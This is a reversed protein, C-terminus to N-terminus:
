FYSLFTLIQTFSDFFHDMKKRQGLLGARNIYDLGERRNVPYVEPACIRNIQDEQWYSEKTIYYGPVVGFCPHKEIQDTCNM